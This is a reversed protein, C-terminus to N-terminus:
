YFQFTSNGRRVEKKGKFEEISIYVGEKALKSLAVKPM